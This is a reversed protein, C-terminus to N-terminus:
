RQPYQTKIQKLNSLTVSNPKTKEKKDETEQKKKVRLPKPEIYKEMEQQLIQDFKMSIILHQTDIKFM